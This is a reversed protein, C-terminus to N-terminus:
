KKPKGLGKWNEIPEDDIVDELRNNEHPVEIIKLDSNKESILQDANNDVLYSPAIM